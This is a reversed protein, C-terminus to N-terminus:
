PEPEPKPPQGSPRDWAGCSRALKPPAPPAGAGQRHWQQQQVASLSSSPQSPLSGQRGRVGLLADVPFRASLNRLLGGIAALNEAGMMGTASRQMIQAHSQAKTLSVFVVDRPERM